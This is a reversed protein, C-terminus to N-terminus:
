FVTEKIIPIVLLVLCQWEVGAARGWGTKPVFHERVTPPAHPLWRRVNRCYAAYEAGFRKSLRTEEFRVAADYILWAWICAPPIMWPLECLVCLSAIILLNGIYVPNRLWAYPGSLALAPEDRLRYKLHRQAVIRVLVGTLFLSLGFGWNGVDYEWEGAHWFFLFAIVPVMLLGRMKFAAAYCLKYTTEM